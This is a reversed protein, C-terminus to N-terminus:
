QSVFLRESNERFSLTYRKLVPDLRTMRPAPSGLQCGVGGTTFSNRSHHVSSVVRSPNGAQNATHQCHAQHTRGGHRVPYFVEVTVRATLGKITGPVAEIAAAYQDLGGTGTRDVTRAVGRLASRFIPVPRAVPIPIGVAAGAAHGNATREERPQLARGPPLGCGVFRQDLDPHAGATDHAAAVRGDVVRVQHLHVVDPDAEFM